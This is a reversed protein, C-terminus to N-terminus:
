QETRSRGHPSGAPKIHLMVAYIKLTQSSAEHSIKYRHFRATHNVDVALWVKEDDERESECTLTVSTHATPNQDSYFDIDFSIDPDREVLIEVWGLRAELGDGIFPNIRGSVIEMAIDSGADAGTDNLKYVYGTTDGGLLV